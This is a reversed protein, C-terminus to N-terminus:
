WVEMYLKIESGNYM